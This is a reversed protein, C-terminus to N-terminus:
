AIVGNGRRLGAIKWEQMFVSLRDRTAQDDGGTAAIAGIRRVAAIQQARAPVSWVTAAGGLVGLERRLM